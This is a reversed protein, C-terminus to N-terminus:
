WYQLLSVFQLRCFVELLDVSYAFIRFQSTMIIIQAFCLAPNGIIVYGHPRERLWCVIGSHCEFTTKVKMNECHKMRGMGCEAQRVCEREHEMEHLELKLKANEHRLLEIVSVRRVYLFSGDKYGESIKLVGALLCFHKMSLFGKGQLIKMGVVVFLIM